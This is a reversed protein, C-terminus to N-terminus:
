VMRYGGYKEKRAILLTGQFEKRTGKRIVLEQPVDWMGTTTLLFSM